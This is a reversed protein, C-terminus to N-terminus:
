EFCDIYGDAHKKIKERDCQSYADYVGIVTMGAAKASMIAPLIDEFVVCEEPKLGLKEATRLFIDPHEKGKGVEDSTSIADFYHWIDNKKLVVELLKHCNTTALAIKIGKTKLLSLFERVGKKLNINNAYEDFAMNNWEDMIDEIPDPIKFREKFYIATERFSLKEINERLDEPVAIGRKKLYDYDIKEWVHMSDILTGDLDFIVGKIIGNDIKEIIENIIRNREMVTKDKMDTIDKEISAM